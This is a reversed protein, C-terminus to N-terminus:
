RNLLALQAAGGRGASATPLQQPRRQPAHGPPIPVHATAAQQLAQVATVAAHNPHRM